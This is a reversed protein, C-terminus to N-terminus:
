SKLLRSDQFISNVQYIIQECGWPTSINIIEFELKFERQNLNTLERNAYFLSRGSTNQDNELVFIKKTIFNVVILLPILFLQDIGTFLVKKLKGTTEMVYLRIIEESPKHDRNIQFEELIENLLPDFGSKVASLNFIGNPRELTKKFKNLFSNSINFALSFYKESYDKKEVIVSTLINKKSVLFVVYDETTFSSLGGLSLTNFFGKLASLFASFLDEQLNKLKQSFLNIGSESHLILIATIVM